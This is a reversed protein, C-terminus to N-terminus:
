KSYELMYTASEDIETLEIGSMAYEGNVYFAWYHKDKNYDAEIGNVKKVYMGFQGDEGEILKHEILAEGVTEKDTNVTFIVSEEGVKVELSFTKSGKGFEMDKRYIANEWLGEKDVKNCAVFCFVLCLALIVSAANIIKKM